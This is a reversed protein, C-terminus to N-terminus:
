LESKLASLITDLKSAAEILDMKHRGGKEKMADNQFAHNNFNNLADLPEKVIEIAERIEEESAASKKLRKKIRNV